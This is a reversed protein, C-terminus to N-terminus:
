RAAAVTPPAVISRGRLGRSLLWFMIPLEGAYLVPAVRGVVQRYQPLLLTTAASAVYATGAVMLLIGLVRPVFGSRLVCIAFPFLWLGWFISAIVLGNGHLRLSLYTLADLQRADFASLWAGGSVLILAAVEGLVNLFVIPVALLSLIVMRLANREDVERFLRYLVLVLLIGITQHVVESAIGLRLLGQSAAVRQATAAADGRVFVQGPVYLLGFPAIIGLLLYLIGAKRATTRIEDM